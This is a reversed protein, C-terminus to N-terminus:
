FNGGSSASILRGRCIVQRMPEVFLHECWERGGSAEQSADEARSSYVAWANLMPPVISKRPRGDAGTVALKIRGAAAEPFESCPLAIARAVSTVYRSRRLERKACAARTRRPDVYCMILPDFAALNPPQGLIPKGGGPCGGFRAANSGSM